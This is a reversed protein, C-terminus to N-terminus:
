VLMKGFKNEKAVQMQDIVLYKENECKQNYQIHELQKVM